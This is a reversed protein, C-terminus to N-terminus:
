DRSQKFEMVMQADQCEWFHEMFEDYSYLKDVLNPLQAKRPGAWISIRCGICCIGNQVVGSEVDLFPLATTAM